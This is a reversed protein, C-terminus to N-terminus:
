ILGAGKNFFKKTLEARAHGKPHTKFFRRMYKLNTESFGSGYETTLDRALNEMLQEGYKARFQANQEVMVIQQGIEWYADVIIKNIVEKSRLQADTYINGISTLLKQYSSNAIAQPM